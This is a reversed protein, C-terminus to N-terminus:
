TKIIFLFLFFFFFLFSIHRAENIYAGGRPTLDRLPQFERELIEKARQEESKNFPGFPEGNM